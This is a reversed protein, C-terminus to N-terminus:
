EKCAPPVLFTRPGDEAPLNLVAHAPELMVQVTVEVLAHFIEVVM